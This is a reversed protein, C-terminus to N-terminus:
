EIYKVKYTKLINGTVDLLEIWDIMTAELQRFRIWVMGSNKQFIQPNQIRDYNLANGNDSYVNWRPTNIAYGDKPVANAFIEIADNPYDLMIADSTYRGDIPKPMSTVTGEKWGVDGSRFYVINGETQMEMM